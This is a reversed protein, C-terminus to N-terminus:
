ELHIRPWPGSLLGIRYACRVAEHRYGVQFKELINHVHNKVTCITISLRAAIEKNTLGAAILALVDKERPTLAAQLPPEQGRDRSLKSLRTFVSAAIRDSCLTQGRQVALISRILKRCSEGKLLYDSAGAEIFQLIREEAHDLGLAVVKLHPIRENLEWTLDVASQRPLNPGILAVDVPKSAAIELVQELHTASHVRDIDERAELLASISETFLQNDDIILVRVREGMSIGDGTTDAALRRCLRLVEVGAACAFNKSELSLRPLLAAKLATM